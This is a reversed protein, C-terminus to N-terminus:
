LLTSHPRCAESCLASAVFLPLLMAHLPGHFCAETCTICAQLSCPFSLVLSKCEGNGSAGSFPSRSTWKSSGM